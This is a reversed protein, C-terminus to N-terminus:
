DIAVLWIGGSRPTMRSARLTACAFNSQVCERGLTAVNNTLDSTQGAQRVKVEFYGRVVSMVDNRWLEQMITRRFISQYEM